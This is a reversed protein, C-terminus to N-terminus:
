EKDFVITVMDGVSWSKAAGSRLEIVNNAEASPIVVEAGPEARRKIHVIEGDEIWVIDLPILTDIMTFQYIQSEPFVFIMGKDNDLYKRGSLGKQRANPTSAVELKYVANGHTVTATERLVKKIYYPAMDVVRSGGVNWFVIGLILSVMVLTWLGKIGM